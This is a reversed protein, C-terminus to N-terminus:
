FGIGLLNRLRCAWILSVDALTIWLREKASLKMAGSVSNWIYQVETCLKDQEVGSMYRLGMQVAYMCSFRLDKVAIGVLNPDNKKLYDLRELKAELGALRKLSYKEGMISQERQTYFYCPTDFVSVREARGIVQYTWFVDEHCKGTPFRIDRVLTSKYLKNWVPQKVWSELIVAEMAEQHNLVCCGQGTLMQKATDWVMEVGCVSIDSSHKMLDDYLLRYMDGRVWDDSDVFAIYEGTAADLGANRADSLGGNDKHIVKIRSDEAAWADCMVGCNDPSGDDVLIIELNQYTQDVISQVCRDLYQQTKYVPVIVSILGGQVM